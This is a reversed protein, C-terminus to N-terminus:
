KSFGCAHGRSTYVLYPHAPSMEHAIADQVSQNLPEKMQSQKHCIKPKKTGSQHKEYVIELEAM